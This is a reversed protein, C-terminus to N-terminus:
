AAYSLMRVGNCYIGQKNQRYEGSEPITFNKCVIM